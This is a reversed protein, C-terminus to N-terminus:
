PKTQKKCQLILRNITTNFKDLDQQQEVTRPPPPFFPKFVERIGFYTTQCSRIRSQQIDKIRNKNEQVLQQNQQVLDLRANTNDRVDTIVWALSGLTVFFLITILIFATEISRGRFFTRVKQDTM